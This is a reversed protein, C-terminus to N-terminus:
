KKTAALLKSIADYVKSYEEAKIDPVRGAKNSTVDALAKLATDNDTANAYDTLMKRVEEKTRAPPTEDDDGFPNAKKEPEPKPDVAAKEPKEKKPKETKEAKDAVFGGGGNAAIKEVATVLRVLLDFLEKM